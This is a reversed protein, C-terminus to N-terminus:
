AATVAARVTAERDRVGTWYADHIGDTILARAWLINPAGDRGKVGKLYKKLMRVGTMDMELCVIVGRGDEVRAPPRELAWAEM